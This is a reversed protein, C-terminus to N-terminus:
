LPTGNSFVTQESAAYYSLTSATTTCSGRMLWRIIVSGSSVAENGKFLFLSSPCGTMKRAKTFSSHTPVTLYGRVM